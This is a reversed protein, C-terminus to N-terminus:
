LHSQLAQSQVSVDARMQRVAHTKRIHTARVHDEEPREPVHSGKPTKSNWIRGTGLDEIAGLHKTFCDQINGPITLEVVYSFQRSKIPQPFFFFSLVFFSILVLFPSITNKFNTGSVVTHSSLRPLSQSIPKEGSGCLVRPASYYFSRLEMSNWVLGKIHFGEREVTCLPCKRMVDM